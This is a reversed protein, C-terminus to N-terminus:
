ILSGDFHRGPTHLSSPVSCECGSQDSDLSTRAARTKMKGTGHRACDGEPVTVVILEKRQESVRVM